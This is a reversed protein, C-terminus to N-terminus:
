GVIFGQAEVDEPTGAYILARVEVETPEAGGVGLEATWIADASDFYRSATTFDLLLASTEGCHLWSQRGSHHELDDRPVPACTTGDALLVLLPLPDEPAPATFGEVAPSHIRVATKELPDRVCLAEEGETQRCAILLDEDAGCAFFDEGLAWRTIAPPSGACADGEIEQIQWTSDPWVATITTATFPGRGDTGEVRADLGGV